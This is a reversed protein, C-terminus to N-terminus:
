GNCPYWVEARGDLEVEPFRDPHLLAGLIEIGDVMRPGSRNFYASGDVVFARGNRMARGAVRALNRAYRDADARAAALGYGCPMVVLVDPDLGALADWSVERSPAAAESVLLQGGAFEVMQPTWHGPVFPPDLWEVALVQLRPAGAVRDVVAAIRGRLSAVLEEAQEVVGAARGVVAVSAFLDDVTHCDLSVVRPRNGLMAAAQQAMSTPVACVECVAQALILEPRVARLRDEDLEYVSGHREMAKRVAADVERSSKAAPDFRPRSIRPKILAEPPFDCEHSIAVLQDGLGLDYVIETASGLLSAIRM